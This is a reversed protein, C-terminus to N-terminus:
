TTGPGRNSGAVVTLRAVNALKNFAGEGSVQRCLVRPTGGSADVVRDASNWVLQQFRQQEPDVSPLRLRKFIIRDM